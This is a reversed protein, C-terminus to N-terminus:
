LFTTTSVSNSSDDAQSSDGCDTTAVGVTPAQTRLIQAESTWDALDDGRSLGLFTHYVREVLQVLWGEASCTSTM